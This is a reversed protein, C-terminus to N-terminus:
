GRVTVLAVDGSVSACRLRGPRETGAGITGGLRRRGPESRDGLGECDTTVRGSTSSLEVRAGTSPPLRVIVDGSVTSVSLDAPGPGAMDIIVEGTVTKASVSGPSAGVVVLDGSVSEVTLRGTLGRGEVGGSVTRARVDGGLGDLVLPGSVTRVDSRGAMGIVTAAASVGDLQVRCAPPVFISISVRRRGLGGQGLLRRWVPLEEYGVSLVGDDGHEVRLPAGDIDTVALRPPGPAGVVTVDGGVVAVRLRSVRDLALDQPSAIMRVPM